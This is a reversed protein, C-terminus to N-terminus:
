SRPAPEADGRAYSARFKALLPLGVDRARAEVAATGYARAVPLVGAGRLADLLARTEDVGPCHSLGGFDVVVAAREFLKPARQVREAMEAALRDADLTRVRLNAIGVQGFKLEGAQEYDPVQAAVTLYGDGADPRPRAARPRAAM